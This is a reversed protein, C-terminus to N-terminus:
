AAPPSARGPEGLDPVVRDLWRPMWWARDGLLRLVVPQLLLRILTADLLVAVALIVGMERPAIPGSLAFTMFVVVMVGAAANIVRGTATLGHVLAQRGDGTRDLEAKVTSLLFVTYDIALSFILAFFFIPAWADVFGQAHWGLLGDLVGEQFILRAVGFAAVTALLSMAVAAAAIIPARLLAVLLLFGLVLAVGVVIPLRETLAHELDRTEAAAGGVHAGRPLTQRLRDIAAAETGARPIATLLVHDQARETAGVGAIAPDGKLVARATTADREPVVVQLAGASGPGFGRELQAQGERADAGAPLATATPMGVRLGLAPAALLLLIAVAAAAYPFPRAWLRNAWAGFRESRHEVAGRVRLRGGNIRHGLRALVAPLLTLTAALVMVVSLAIGVPVTRFAPVPILTLALLAAIVTLGSVLVARGATAMTVVAAERPARGAALEARFRVVVFLAYDIGLAIAFMMAFNMAWISVDAFQGVVFLLGGAGMLGGITLLLPLGAAWLTGFALLLLAMTLPWSLMESRLMAAKNTENFDSWMAAPGTLRVTMDPESLRALPGKLRGAAEVMERPNGGSLGVVVATSGDRSVQPAAVGAVARDGRLLAQVRELAAGTEDGAVVASLAYADRGGFHADLAHRAAVSDSGLAEWGAGSLARDAFPAFAGLGLVVAAWVIAVRRRHDAAWGGLRGLGGPAVDHDPATATATTM